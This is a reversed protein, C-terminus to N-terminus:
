EIVGPQPEVTSHFDVASNNTDQYIVRGNERSQVRRRVVKGFRSEDGDGCNIYSLDLAPSLAKSSFDSPTGMEVADLIISNPVKYRILTSGSPAVREVMYNDMYEEMSGEDYRFIVYSKFGRNHPTWISASSSFYKIMNPVDPVDVDLPHDDYWEFDAFSLDIANPNDQTHDIGIDAIILSEGPNVPVETGDGPITYVVHTVFYDDIIDAWPNIDSSTTHDSEGISIGDAYLVENTNNYIEFYKDKYYMRGEPTQSGTVYLEKFVWGQNSPAIFLAIEKEDWNGSISINEALGTVTVTQEFQDEGIQSTYSKEGSVVIEYVGEEITVTYSGTDDVEGITERGNGMNTLEVSLGEPTVSDGMVDPMVVSVLFETMAVKDDDDSCSAFFIFPMMALIIKIQKM